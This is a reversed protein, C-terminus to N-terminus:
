KAFFTSQPIFVSPSNFLDPSFPCCVIERCEGLHQLTATGTDTAGNVLYESRYKATEGYLNLLILSTGLFPRRYGGV